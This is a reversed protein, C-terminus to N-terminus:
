HGHNKQLHLLLMNLKDRSGAIYSQPEKRYAVVRSLKVVVLM